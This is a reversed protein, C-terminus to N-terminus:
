QLLSVILEVNCIAGKAVERGGIKISLAVEVAVLDTKISHFMPLGPIAVAVANRKDIRGAGFRCFDGRIGLEVLENERLGCLSVAGAAPLDVQLRSTKGAM